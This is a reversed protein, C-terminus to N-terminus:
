LVDCSGVCGNPWMSSPWQATYSTHGSVTQTSTSYSGGNLLRLYNRYSVAMMDTMTDPFGAIGSLACMGDEDLWTNDDAKHRDCGNEQLGYCGNNGSAEYVDIANAISASAFTSSEGNIFASWLAHGANPCRHLPHVFVDLPAGYDNKYLAWWQWPSTKFTVNDFMLGARMYVSSFKVPFVCTSCVDQDRIVRPAVIVCMPEDIAYLTGTEEVIECDEIGFEAKFANIASRAVTDSDEDYTVHFHYGYSYPMTDTDCKDLGSPSVTSTYESCSAKSYRSHNNAAVIRTSARATHLSHDHQLLTVDPLDDSDEGYSCHEPDHVAACTVSLLLVTTCRM